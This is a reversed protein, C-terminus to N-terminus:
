QRATVHRKWFGITAAVGQADTVRKVRRVAAHTWGRTDSVVEKAPLDSTEAACFTTAEPLLNAERHKWGSYVAQSNRCELGDNVFARTCTTVKNDSQQVGAEDRAQLEVGPNQDGTSDGRPFTHPSHERAQVQRTAM